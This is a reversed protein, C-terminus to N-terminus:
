PERVEGAVVRRRGNATELVLAGERDLDLALGEQGDV